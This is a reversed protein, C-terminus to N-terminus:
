TAPTSQGPGGNGSPPEEYSFTQEPGFVKEKLWDRTQRGTFPNFLLGLTVGFLLLTTNRATHDDKAQVRNAASRLDDIALRLRDRIDDDTAARMAVATASRGGILDDYVGKAALFASKVNERVEDDKLAREVYPRFESVRDKTKM